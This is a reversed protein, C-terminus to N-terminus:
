TNNHFEYKGKKSKGFEGYYFVRIFPADWIKPNAM